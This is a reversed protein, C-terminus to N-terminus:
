CEQHMEDADKESRPMLAGLNKRSKNSAKEVLPFFFVKM